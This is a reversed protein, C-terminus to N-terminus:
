EGTYEQLEYTQTYIETYASATEDSILNFSAATAINAELVDAEQSFWGVLGETQLTAGQVQLAEAMAQESAEDAFVYYQYEAVADEGNAYLIVYVENIGIGAESYSLLMGCEPGGRYVYRTDYEIDEPDTYTFEETINIEGGAKEEEGSTGAGNEKESSSCGALAVSLCVAATIVFRKTWNKM